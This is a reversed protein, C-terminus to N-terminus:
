RMEQGTLVGGEVTGAPVSDEQQNIADEWLMQANVCELQITKPSVDKTLYHAIGSNRRMLHRIAEQLKNEEQLFTSFLATIKSLKEQARAMNSLTLGTSM